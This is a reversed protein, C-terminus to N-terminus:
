GLQIVTIGNSDAVAFRNKSSDVAVPPLNESHWIISSNQKGSNLEPWRQVIKGSVINILKPHEFFGVVYEKNVPMIKGVPEEVRGLLTIRKENIDLRALHCAKNEDLGSNGVMVISNNDEFVAENVEFLEEPFEMWAFDGLIGPEELAKRVSYLSVTDVPHWVWGASLLLEGNPSAQLRSHFFDGAHGERTTLRKGSEIEEIHIENYEEPCHAIVTRGDPLSFICIPYEYAHAYYFSRNIERLMKTGKLVLGKTGLVEYIVTYQGDPSFIAHDFRYSYQVGGPKITGDLSYQTFVTTVDILDDGRWCLSKIKANNKLEIRFRAKEQISM